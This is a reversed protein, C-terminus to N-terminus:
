LEWPWPSDGWTWYQDCEVRDILLPGYKRSYEDLADQRQKKVMQYYDLADQDCPHTDLFLTTDTLAFSVQSIYKLLQHQEKNM